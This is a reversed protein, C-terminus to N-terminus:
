LCIQYCVAPGNSRLPIKRYKNITEILNCGNLHTNLVDQYALHADHENEFLGVHYKKNKLGFNVCWKNYNRHVGIYKSSTSQKHHSRNERATLIRLNNLRNNIKNFDIHDVHHTGNNPKHKLFTVAILVHVDFTKKVGNINLGVILYGRGNKSLKFIKENFNRVFGNITETKRKIRKIRGFTSAQFIGEYNPIDKWIEEQM